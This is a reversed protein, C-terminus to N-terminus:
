ADERSGTNGRETQQFMSILLALAPVVLVAAVAM